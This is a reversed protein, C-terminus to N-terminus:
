LKGVGRLEELAALEQECGPEAHALHRRRLAGVDLPEGLVPERAEAEADAEAERIHRRRDDLLPVSERERHKCDRVLDREHGDRLRRDRMEGALLQFLHRARELHVLAERRGHELAAAQLREKRHDAVVEAAAESEDVLASADDCLAVRPVSEAEVACELQGDDGRPLHDGQLRRALLALEALVVAQDEVM